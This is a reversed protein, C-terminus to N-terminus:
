NPEQSVRSPTGLYAMEFVDLHRQAVEECLRLFKTADGERKDVVKDNMGATQALYIRKILQAHYSDAEVLAETLEAQLAELGSIGRFVKQSEMRFRIHDVRIEVAHLVDKTTSLVM